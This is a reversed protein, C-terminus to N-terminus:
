VNEVQEPKENSVSIVRKLLTPPTANPYLSSAQKRCLVTTQVAVKEPCSRTSTSWNGQALLAIHMGSVAAQAAGGGGTLLLLGQWAILMTCVALQTGWVKLLTPAFRVVTGTIGAGPQPFMNAPDASTQNVNVAGGEPMEIM